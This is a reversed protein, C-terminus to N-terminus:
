RSRLPLVMTVRTGMNERSELTLSGGHAALNRAAIPLGYGSSHKKTKNRRGPTLLRLTDAEEDSMGQGNDVIVISVQKGSLAAEIEIRGARLINGSVTFAEMANKLVNALAMVIQHRAIEVVISEAVHIEVLVPSPDFGVKRVNDRALEVAEAVVVALREAERETPMPQTFARMDEIALELFELDARVRGGLRKARADSQESVETILSHCNLKLHTLISRLDHVMSGVLLESYRECMRMAKDAAAKGHKSEISQFHENVQDLSRKARAAARQNGQRLRAARDASRRVFANSDASLQSVLRDIDDGPLSPLLEAAARRVEWKSDTALERILGLGSESSRGAKLSEGIAQLLERRQPWSLSSEGGRLQSLIKQLASESVDMMSKRVQSSVKARATRKTKSLSRRSPVVRQCAATRVSDPIVGKDTPTGANAPKSPM